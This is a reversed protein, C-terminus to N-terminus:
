KKKKVLRKPKKIKGITSKKLPKKLKAGVVATTNNDENFKKYSTLNVLEEDLLSDKNMFNKKSIKKSQQIFNKFTKGFKKDRNESFAKLTKSEDVNQEEQNEDESMEKELDDLIVKPRKKVEEEEEGDLTSQSDNRRRKDVFKHELKNKLKELKQFIKGDQIFSGMLKGESLRKIILKSTANGLARSSNSSSFDNYHHKSPVFVLPQGAKRITCVTVFENFYVVIAKHKRPNVSKEDAVQDISIEEKCKEKLTVFVIQNIPDIWVIVAEKIEAGVKYTANDVSGQAFIGDNLEILLNNGIITKVKGNVRQGISFKGLPKGSEKLHNMIFNTDSLYNELMDLAGDSDNRWVKHLEPTVYLSNKHSENKAIVNVYVIDGAVLTLTEPNDFANRNLRISQTFNKLPCELEVNEDDISKVHCRLVDNIEVNKFDTKVKGSYYKVDRRSYQNNAIAVVKFKSNEKMANMIPERFASFESIFELPIKGYSKLSDIFIQLSSPLVATVKADYFNGLNDSNKFNQLCLLIKEGKVNSVEFNRISKLKLDGISIIESELNPTKILLGKIHNFFLVTYARPTENLVIGTYSEGVKVKRKNDLIKVNDKKLFGSLNTVQILKANHDIEVVRVRIEKGTEIKAIKHYFVGNLFGRVNGISIRLGENFKEEIKAMLIEGIQIDHTSFHKENLLKENNTCLYCDEFQNYDMIRIDHQTNPHFKTMATEVDFNNKLNKIITHRPLFARQNGELRFIVGGSIQKFVKANKIVVGFQLGKREKANSEDVNLTVFIQNSLAMTYLIRAKVAKGIVTADNSSLKQPIHMENAYAQVSGDFLLGELGNKLKRVINFDVVIGPLLTKLNPVDATNIKIMETKKFAVLTITNTSPSNQVKCFILEGISPEFKINKKPLFSKINSLGTEMLYGHDEIEEVACLIVNGEVLADSSLESNIDSPLLSLLIEQKDGHCKDM